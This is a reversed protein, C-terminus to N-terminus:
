DTGDRLSNIRSIHARRRVSMMVITFHHVPMSLLYDSMLNVCIAMMIADCISCITKSISVSLASENVLRRRSLLVPLPM